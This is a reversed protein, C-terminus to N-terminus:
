LSTLATITQKLAIVIANVKRQHFILKASFKAHDARETKDRLTKDNEEKWPNTTHPQPRQVSLARVRERGQM